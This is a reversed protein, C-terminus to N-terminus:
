SQVLRYETISIFDGRDNVWALTMHSEDLELVKYERGDIVTESHAYSPAGEPAFFFRPKPNRGGVALVRPGPEWLKGDHRVQRTTFTRGDQQALWAKANAKTPKTM